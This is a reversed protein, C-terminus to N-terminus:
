EAIKRITRMQKASRVFHINLKLIQNQESQENHSAFFTRLEFLNPNQVDVIQYFDRFDLREDMDVHLQASPQQTSKKQMRKTNIVTLDHKICKEM